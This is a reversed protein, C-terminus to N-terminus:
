LTVGMRSVNLLLENAWQYRSQSRLWLAADESVWEVCELLSPLAIYPHDKFGTYVMNRSTLIPEHHAIRNRLRRIVELRLHIMSRPVTAQPFANHLSSLWLVNHFRKTLITPWFGFTLEAVIKGPSAAPSLKAKADTVMDIMVSTLSLTEGTSWPLAVDGEFWTSMGLDHSLTHHISNRVAVELGHLFGFLSESVAINHEYLHLASHIDGRTAALYRSLREQSIVRDVSALFEATYSFKLISM